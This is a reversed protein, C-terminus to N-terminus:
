LLAGCSERIILKTDFIVKRPRAEGNQIIDLLIEVLKLGFHLIPQHVTTLPPDAQTAPPLDDYGVIAMEEPVSIQAEDLAKLVGLAMNDSAVFIADPKHQLLRKAAYYGSTESFDGEEILDEDLRLGWARLAQEYGEKRDLGATTRMSGTVTAVRRRGLQILHTVANYAGSVNDVDVYSAEENNRPRGALVFPIDGREILSAVGDDELEGVQVIVGDLLGQRSIRPYLKREDEQTQILFLSLVYDNQNCGQAIAQTLRPFYPDTFFIETTRPLVLGILGSRQAALSRAVPHPRYGTEEIVRKVRERVEPRVHPRNNLVRSATARSVGSRRAIEDLTLKAM